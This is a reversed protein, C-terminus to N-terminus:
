DKNQIKKRETERYENILKHNGSLLVEPVELDNYVRPKTYVPYDYYEDNFSESVLSEENIVGPLLRVISDTIAMSPIEGGTLVYNGVSIIEDALSYIREDFGEYHGCVLIIHKKNKLINAKKQNYTNGRPSTIIVYSDDTKLANVANFIPECMLIMGAGGGFAYDDVQKNKYPSYDRFNIINIEVLSKEIARKIISESLFGDFMKPFLTLIDIKM